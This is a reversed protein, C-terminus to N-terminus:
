LNEFENFIADIAETDTWWERDQFQLSYKVIEKETLSCLEKNKVKVIYFTGCIIRKGVKRNPKMNYFIGDKACLIVIDKELTFADTACSCDSDINVAYNLYTGDCCLQTICPKKEPQIMLAIVM